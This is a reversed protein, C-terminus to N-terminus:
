NKKESTPLIHTYLKYGIQEKHLECIDVFIGMDKNKRFVKRCFGKKTLTMKFRIHYDWCRPCRLIQKYHDSSSEVMTWM